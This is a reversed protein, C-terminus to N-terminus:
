RSNFVGVVVRKGSDTIEFPSNLQEMHKATRDPEVPLKPDHFFGVGASQSRIVNVPAALIGTKYTNLVDVSLNLYIRKGDDCSLGAIYYYRKFDPIYVYNFGSSLVASDYDLCVTPSLINEFDTLYVTKETGTNGAAWTWKNVTRNDVTISKLYIKM